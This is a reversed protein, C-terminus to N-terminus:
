VGALMLFTGEQELRYPDKESKPLTPNNLLEHFITHQEHYGDLEKSRLVRDIALRIKQITRILCPLLKSMLLSARSFNIMDGAAQPMFYRRAWAPLNKALAFVWGFHSRIKVGLLVKTFNRRLNAAHSVDALVDDDFGFNYWTVVSPWLKAVPISSITM